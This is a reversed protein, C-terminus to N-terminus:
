GGFAGCLDGAVSVLDADIADTMKLIFGDLGLNRYGALLESATTQPPVVLVKSVESPERGLGSFGTDLARVIEGATAPSGEFACVDSYRAVVDLIAQERSTGSDLYVAVPPGGPQLPGPRNTAGDVAFHRGEFRLVERTFMAKCIEISEELAEGQARVRDDPADSNPAPDGTGVGLVARGSSLVDLATVQKALLAPSRRGPTTGLAGLRISSTVVALAGLLTYAEFDALKSSGDTGESMTHWDAVWLSDFGTEEAMRALDVVGRLGDRDATALRDRKSILLGLGKLV